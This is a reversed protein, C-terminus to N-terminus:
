QYQMSYGVLLHKESISTTHKIFRFICPRFNSLASDLPYHSKSGLKLVTLNVTPNNTYALDDDKM